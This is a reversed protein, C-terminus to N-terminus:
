LLSTLLERNRKGTNTGNPLVTVTPVKAVIAAQYSVFIVRSKEGAAPSDQANLSLAGRPPRPSKM